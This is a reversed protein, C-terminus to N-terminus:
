RDLNIFNAHANSFQFDGGMMMLVDNGQVVAASELAAAVFADVRAPM